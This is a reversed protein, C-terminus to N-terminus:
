DDRRRRPGDSASARTDKAGFFDAEEDSGDADRRMEPVAYNEAILWAGISSSVHRVMGPRLGDLRVGDIEQQRPTERIRVKVYKGVTVRNCMVVAFSLSGTYLAFWTGPTAFGPLSRPTVRVESPV